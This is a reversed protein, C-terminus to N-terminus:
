YFFGGFFLWGVMWSLFPISLLDHQISGNLVSTLSFHGPYSATQSCYTSMSSDKTHIPINVTTEKRKQCSLQTNSLVNLQRQISSLVNIEVRPCWVDRHICIIVQTQKWGGRIRHQCHLIFHVWPSYYSCPMTITIIINFLNTDNENVKVKM